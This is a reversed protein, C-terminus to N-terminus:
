GDKSWQASRTYGPQQIPSTCRVSPKKWRFTASDWLEKIFILVEPDVSGSKEGITKPRKLGHTQKYCWPMDIPSIDSETKFIPLTVTLFVTKREEGGATRKKLSSVRVLVEQAVEFYNNVPM